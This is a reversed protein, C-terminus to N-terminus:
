EDVLKVEELLDAQVLRQFVLLLLDFVVFLFDLIALGIEVGQLVVGGRHFLHSSFLVHHLTVVFDDIYNLGM